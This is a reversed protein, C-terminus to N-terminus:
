THVNKHKTANKKNEMINKYHLNKQSLQVKKEKEVRCTCIKQM